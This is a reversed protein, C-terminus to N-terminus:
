RYAAHRAEEEPSSPAFANRVSAFAEGRYRHAPPLGRIARILLRFGTTDAPRARHWARDDFHALRGAPLRCTRLRGAEAAADLHAGWAPREGPAADPL